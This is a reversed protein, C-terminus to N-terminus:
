RKGGGHEVDDDLGDRDDDHMLRILSSGQRGMGKRSSLSSATTPLGSPECAGAADGGEVTIRRVAMRIRSVTIGDPVSLGAASSTAATAAAKVSLSLGSGSGSSGCASLTTLGIAAATTAPERM